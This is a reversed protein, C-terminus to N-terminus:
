EFISIVLSTINDTGRSHHRAGPSCEIFIELLFSCIVEYKNNM